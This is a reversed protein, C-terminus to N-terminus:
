NEEEKSQGYTNMKDVIERLWNWDDSSLKTLDVSLSLSVTGADNKLQVTTVNAKTEPQEGGAPPVVKGRVSGEERKIARKVTKKAKAWHTSCKEGVYECADLFFRIIRYLTTSQVDYTRFYDELQGYSANKDALAIAGAYKDRIIQKLTEKRGEDDANVLTKLIPNVTGDEGILGLFKFAGLTQSQLGGSFTPWVTRDLSPPIGPKLTDIATIFTKFPIYVPARGQEEKNSTITVM